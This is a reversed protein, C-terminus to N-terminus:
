LLCHKYLCKRENNKVTYHNEFFCKLYALYQEYELFRCCVACYVYYLTLLTTFYQIDITIQVSQYNANNKKVICFLTKKVVKKFVHKEVIKVLVTKNKTYQSSSIKLFSLM